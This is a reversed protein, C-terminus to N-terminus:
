NAEATASARDRCTARTRLASPVTAPGSSSGRAPPEVGTDRDRRGRRFPRRLSEPTLIM